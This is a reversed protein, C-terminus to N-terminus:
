GLTLRRRQHKREVGALDPLFLRHLPHLPINSPGKIYAKVIKAAEEHLM